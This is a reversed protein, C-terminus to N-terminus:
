EEASPGQELMPLGVSNILALLAKTQPDPEEAASSSSRLARILVPILVVPVTYSTTTNGVIVPFIYNPVGCILMTTVNLESALDAVITTASNANAHHVKFTDRRQTKLANVVADQGQGFTHAVLDKTESLGATLGAIANCTAENDELLQADRKENYERVENLVMKLEGKEKGSTEKSAVKKRASAVLAELNAEAEMQQKKFESDPTTLGALGAQVRIIKRRIAEPLSVHPKPEGSPTSTDPFSAM